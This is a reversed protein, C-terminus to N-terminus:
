KPKSAILCFFYPQNGTIRRAGLKITFMGSIKPVLNVIAVSDPRPDNAEVKGKSDILRLTLDTIGQSGVGVLKYKNQASLQRKLTYEGGPALRDFEVHLITFGAKVVKPSVAGLKSYLESLDDKAPEEALAVSALLILFCLRM